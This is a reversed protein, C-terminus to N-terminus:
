VMLDKLDKRASREVKEDTYGLLTVAIPRLGGGEGPLGCMEMMDAEDFSGVWLSSVGLSAAGLQAYACALTADQVCYLDRGREGFREGADEPVVFFVIMATAGEFRDEQGAGKGVRAIEELDTVVRVRYAQKHGASPALQMMELIEQINEQSVEKGNYARVSIRNKIVDSFEM